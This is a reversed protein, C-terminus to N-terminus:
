RAPQPVSHWRAPLGLDAAARKLALVLVLVMAPVGLPILTAEALTRAALPMLWLFALATKEWPAFGRVSGNGAIFAIAPALAVFDYDISYPTALMSAIILAAAKLPLAADSRWLWALAGALVVIVAGQITYALHVGGGWMRVWAFVSQIKYSGTGTQELIVERTYPMSDVFAQWIDFGFALTTVIVLAVVTLAASTFARWRASAILVLPIMVGFQPKYSLLGFLVGALIPRLDLAVLALGILTATLFGNHGHGINVFAAPSAVALLLWLPDKAIPDQAPPHQTPADAADEPQTKAARLVAWLMGLYLLLTAGQWVALAAPYPMLALVASVLLLFPPYSWAYFPTAPGFIAQERAHQRPPDFALGPTGDLAYTGGAYIDSFDTGLPRGQYDNLGDSTALLFGLGALSAVLVALAWLRVRARTMWEGSRLDALVKGM